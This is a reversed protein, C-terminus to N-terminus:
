FKRARDERGRDALEPCPPSFLGEFGAARIAAFKKSWSWERRETPYQRLSWLSAFLWLPRRLRLEIHGKSKQM